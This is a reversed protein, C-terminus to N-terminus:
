RTFVRVHPVFYPAQQASNRACLCARFMGENIFWTEKDNINPVHVAELENMPDYCNIQTKSSTSVSQVTCSSSASASDKKKKAWRCFVEDTDLFRIRCDSHVIAGFTVQVFVACLLKAKSCVLAFRLKAKSTCSQKM